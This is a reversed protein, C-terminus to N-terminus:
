HGLSKFERILMACCVLPLSHMNETTKHMSIENQKKVLSMFFIQKLSTVFGLLEKMVQWNLFLWQRM